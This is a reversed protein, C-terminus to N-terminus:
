ATLILRDVDTIVDGHDVTFDIGHNYDFEEDSLDPDDTISKEYFEEININVFLCPYEFKPSNGREDSGMYLDIKSWKGESVRITWLNMIKPQYIFTGEDNEFGPVQFSPDKGRATAVYIAKAIANSLNDKIRREEIMDVSPMWVVTLQSPLIEIDTALQINSGQYVQRYVFLAPLDQSSIGEYPDDYIVNAVPQAEGLYGSNNSQVCVSRWLDGVYKNIFAQLYSGFILLNPDGATGLRGEPKSPFTNRGIRARTEYTAM